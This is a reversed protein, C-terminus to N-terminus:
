LHSRYRVASTCAVSMTMLPNVWWKVAMASLSTIMIKRQNNLPNREEDEDRSLRDYLWAKM